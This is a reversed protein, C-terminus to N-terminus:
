RLFLWRVFVLRIGRVLVQRACEVQVFPQQLLPEPEPPQALCSSRAPAQRLLVSAAFVPAERTAALSACRLAADPVLRRQVQLASLLAAEELLSGFLASMKTARSGAVKP